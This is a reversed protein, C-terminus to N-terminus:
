GRVLIRNGRPVPAPDGRETYGASVAGLWRSWNLHFSSAGELLRGARRVAAQLRRAQELAAPNGIGERLRPRWEELRSGATELVRSCRDLAEPSPSVLLACARDVESRAALLQEVVDAAPM